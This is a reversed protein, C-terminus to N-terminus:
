PASIGLFCGSLRGCVTDRTVLYSMTKVAKLEDGGVTEAIARELDEESEFYWCSLQRKIERWLIGTPSLQQTYPPM